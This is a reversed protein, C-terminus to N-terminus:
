KSFLVNLITFENVRENEFRPFDNEEKEQLFDAFSEKLITLGLKDEIFKQRFTIKDEEIIWIIKQGMEMLKFSEFFSFPNLKAFFIETDKPFRTTFEHNEFFDM